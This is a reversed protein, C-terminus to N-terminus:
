RGARIPSDTASDTLVYAPGLGTLDRRYLTRPQGGSVDLVTEIRVFQGSQPSYAVADIRFQRGRGCLRPALEALRPADLVGERVLWAFTLTDAAELHSRVAIAEDAESPQFGVAELVCAAAAAPNVLGPIMQQGSGTLEELALALEDPSMPSEAQVDVTANGQRVKLTGKWGYLQAPHTFRVGGNRADRVFDATQPSFGLEVMRDRVTNVAGTAFNLKARGDHTTNTEFSYVTLWAAWGPDLKGDGNDPPLSRDGDNENPEIMGNRNADEGFLLTETVGRVLLLEDVSEFSGNRARYPSPLNQYYDSEAGQPGPTDDADRWDIIAEAVDRTMGPLLLLQEVTAVNLNLRGSEDALGYAPADDVTPDDRMLCVRWEPPGPAVILDRFLDPNDSVNELQYEPDLLIAAALSVGARAAEAAQAARQDAASGSAQSRIYFNLGAALLGAMLVVVLTVYFIVGRRRRRGGGARGTLGARDTAHGDGM